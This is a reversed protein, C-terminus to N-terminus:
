YGESLSIPDWYQDPFSLNKDRCTMSGWDTNHGTYAEPSKAIIIIIIVFFKIFM